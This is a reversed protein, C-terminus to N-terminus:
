YKRVCLEYYAGDITNYKIGAAMGAAIIEKRTGKGAAQMDCVIRKALQFPKVPAAQVPEPKPPALKALVETVRREATARDRFKKIPHDAFQNYAGLLQANTATQINLM